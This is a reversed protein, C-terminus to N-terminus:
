QMGGTKDVIFLGWEAAAVVADAHTDGDWVIEVGDPEHWEVFYTFRPESWPGIGHQNERRTRVTACDIAIFDRLLHVNHGNSM